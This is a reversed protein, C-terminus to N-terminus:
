AWCLNRRPSLAQAAELRLSALTPALPAATATGGDAEPEIIAILQDGAPQPGAGACSAGDLRSLRVLLRKPGRLATLALSEGEGDSDWLRAAAELLRAADAKVAPRMVGAVPPLFFRRDALLDETATNAVEVRLRLSLLAVGAALRDWGAEVASRDTDRGNQLSRTARLSLTLDERLRHLLAAVAAHYQQGLTPPFRLSLVIAADGEIEVVLGAGDTPATPEQRGITNLRVVTGIGPSAVARRALPRRAGSERDVRADPTAAAFDRSPMRELKAISYPFLDEISQLVLPWCSPCVSALVVRERVFDLCGPFNILVM